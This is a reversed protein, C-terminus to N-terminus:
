EDSIEVWNRTRFKFPHNTTDDLLNITKQYEMIINYLILRLDDIIKDRLELSIYRERLIEEKNAELNNKPLTKSVRTIKDAIKNGIVYDTSEAPNKQTARKSTTKPADVASQKAHDLHEQSCKSNLNKGVNKGVNKGMKRAFSLFGYGKVSIWDRPLVSYCLM